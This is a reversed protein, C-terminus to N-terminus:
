KARPRYFALLHRQINNQKGALEQVYSEGFDRQGPDYLAKVDEVFKTRSVAVLSVNKLQLEGTIKQYAEIDAAM